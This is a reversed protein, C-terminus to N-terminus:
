GKKQQKNLWIMAKNVEEITNASLVKDFQVKTIAEADLKHQALDKMNMFEESAKVDQMDASSDSRTEEKASQKGKPKEQTKTASQTPEPLAWSPLKPPMWYFSDFKGEKGKQFIAGNEKKSLVTGFTADLDYLYRGIGFQVVARKMASSRGGKTAEIDTQDAADSRSIWQQKGDDWVKITCEVGGNPLDKFENQWGFLGFVADLRDMAARNTIYALCQVWPKGDKTAGCQAARWEIQDEDFPARLQKIIEENM